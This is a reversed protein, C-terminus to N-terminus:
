VCSQSLGPPSGFDGSCSGKSVILLISVLLKTLLQQEIKLIVTPHNELANELEQPWFFYQLVIHM